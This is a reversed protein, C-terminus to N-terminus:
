TIWSLYNNALGWVSKELNCRSRGAAVAFGSFGMGKARMEFSLVEVPYLAQLPTFGVSFVAGFIFIFALSATGAAKNTGYLKTDPDAGPPLAPISQTYIATSVTVALWVVCCGINSFLLLPRRGVRDVLNAGILAFIFQQCNNILTVNAQGVSSHIGVTDLVKGLFYSLVAIKILVVHLSTKIHVYWKRGM